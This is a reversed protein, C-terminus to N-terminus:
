FLSFPTNKKPPPARFTLDHPFVSPSGGYHSSSDLVLRLRSFSPSTPPRGKEQILQGTRRVM